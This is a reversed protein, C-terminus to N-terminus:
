LHLSLVVSVEGSVPLAQCIHAGCREASVFIRQGSSDAVIAQLWPGDAPLHQWSSYLPFAAALFLAAVLLPSFCFSRSM